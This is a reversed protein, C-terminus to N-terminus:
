FNRNPCTLNRTRDPGAPLNEAAITCVNYQSGQLTKLVFECFIHICVSMFTVHQSVCMCVDSMRVFMGTWRVLFGFM